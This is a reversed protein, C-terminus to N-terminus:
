RRAAGVGLVAVLGVLAMVAAAPEPVAALPPLGGGDALSLLGGAPLYSGTGSLGAANLLSIDTSNVVGDYNLDGEWWAAGGGAMGYKGGGNILSIDTSDVRGDLNVDGFAAWAVTAAGTASVRYGVVPQAATGAVGATTIIGGTGSWTGGSRGALLDARLAAETIGGPAVDIRGRGLDLVGGTAQDVSLGTASVVLHSATPLALTGGTQVVLPSAALANAHTIRVTGQTVSTTGTTTNAADLVLTGAGVKRVAVAGGIAAYGAAAQSQTGSTVDIRAEGAQARYARVYDVQMTAPFPTSSDPSGVYNGGVALNLLLHFPRDFPAPYTGGSSWWTTQSGYIVDNVYWRMVPTPAIDWELAYTNFASISQGVPFTYISGSQTNAPWAGGYHITGEVRTAQQGRAEMIDIEGSAAWGGYAGAEPLMWIAPWLGRGLPLAARIEFRGGAQSFLGRTTMRASTYASGAYNEKLATIRLMGDAVSANQTRDTYYELENNGWGTLGRDAGTGIDFTWRARDIASGAFEDRWTMVPYDAPAARAIAGPLVAALAVAVIGTRTPRPM